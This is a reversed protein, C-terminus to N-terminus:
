KREKSVSEGLATAALRLKEIADNAADIRKNYGDPDAIVVVGNEVHVRRSPDAAFRYLEETASVMVRTAEFYATLPDRLSPDQQLLAEKRKNLRDSANAYQEFEALSTAAVQPSAFSQPQLLTKGTASEAFRRDLQTQEENVEALETVLPKGLFVAMLVFAVSYLAIAAIWTRKLTLWRGAVAESVAWAALGLKLSGSTLKETLDEVSAPDGKVFVVAAIIASALAVCLFIGLRAWRSARAKDPKPEDVLEPQEIPLPTSEIAGVQIEHELPATRAPETLSGQDAALHLGNLTDVTSPNGTKSPPATSAGLLMGIPQGSPKAVADPELAPAVGTAAGTPSAGSVSPVIVAVGCKVCFQSDEPM